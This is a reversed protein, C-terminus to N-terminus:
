KNSFNMFKLFEERNLMLGMQQTLFNFILKKIM